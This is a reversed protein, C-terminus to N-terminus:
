NLEHWQWPGQKPLALSRLEQSFWSMWSAGMWPRWWRRWANRGGGGRAWLRLLAMRVARRTRPGVPCRLGPVLLVARLGLGLLVAQWGAWSAEHRLHTANAAVRLYGHRLEVAEYIRPRRLHINPTTAAGGHGIVLHVPARAVGQADRGM